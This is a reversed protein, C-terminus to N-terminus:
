TGARGVPEDGGVLADALVARLAAPDHGGGGDLLDATIVRAVLPRLVDRDVPLAAGPGLPARGQHAVLADPELSDRSLLQSSLEPHRGILQKRWAESGRGLLLVRRRPDTRLLPVLAHELMGSTAAGYTGFHGLWPGPGLAVRVAEVAAEPVEAPLTSPM